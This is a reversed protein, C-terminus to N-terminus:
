AVAKLLWPAASTREVARLRASRARPNASIECAKARVPRATLLRFSPSRGAKVAPRQRSPNSGRGVRERFFTKVLRDELSHFSVVVLRGGTTLIKEAAVLGSALEDLENNIHVRIAQFTRTAPDLGDASKKVVRRIITALERTRSIPREKRAAVIAKAVSLARREEGYGLIVGALEKESAQNVFTMADLGAAEMRMDLPGDHRFSFGRSADSLQTSSVGLDLVIGGNVRAVGRAKLYSDMSGFNGGVFDFRGGYGAKMKEASDRAHPDRDIAVVNCVASTLLAKSYGGCGFTGDVYLAGNRPELLAVVEELLVPVHGLRRSPIANTM